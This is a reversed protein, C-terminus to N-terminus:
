FHWFFHFLFDEEVAVTGLEAGQCFVLGVLIRIRGGIADQGREKAPLTEEEDELIPDGIYVAVLLLIIARGFVPQFLM